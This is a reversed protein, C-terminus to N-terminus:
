KFIRFKLIYALIHAFQVPNAMSTPTTPLGWRIFIAIHMHSHEKSLRLCHWVHIAIACECVCWVYRISNNMRNNYEYVSVCDVANPRRANWCQKRHVYVSACVCLFASLVSLPLSICFIRHTSEIEAVACTICTSAHKCANLQVM